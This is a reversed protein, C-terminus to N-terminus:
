TSLIQTTDLVCFILICVFHLDCNLKRWSRVICFINRKMIRSRLFIDALSIDRQFLIFICVQADHSASLCVQNVPHLIVASIKKQHGKFTTQVAETDSNFLVVTRDAGGTLVM